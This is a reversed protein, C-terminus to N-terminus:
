EESPNITISVVKTYRYHKIPNSVDNVAVHYPFIGYYYSKGEEIDNDELANVSYEDRTTSDVILTGDWRNSPPSGEKRVVVTGAWTAPVPENTIIDPPDTWKLKVTPTVIPVPPTFVDSTFFWDYGSYDLLKEVYISPSSQEVSYVGFVYNNDSDILATLGFWAASNLEAYAWNAGVEGNHYMRFALPYSSMFYAAHLSNGNKLKFIERYNEDQNNVIEAWVGRFQGNAKICFLSDANEVTLTATGSVQSNVLYQPPNPITFPEQIYVGNPVPNKIRTNDYLLIDDRIITATAM